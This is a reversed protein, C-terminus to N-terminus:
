FGCMVPTEECVGLAPPIHASTLLSSTYRKAQPQLPQQPLLQTYPKRLWKGPHSLAGVSQLGRFVKLDLHAKMNFYDNTVAIFSIHSVRKVNVKGVTLRRISLSWM